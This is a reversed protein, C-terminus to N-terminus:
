SGAAPGTPVWFRLKGDREGAPVGGNREIVVRSGVNGVDCTVLARDIGLARAVPLAAALMATAHGERRRSRRVDYGIHGGVERLWANLEHRVSMRGIYGKEDVWWLNTNLVWDEDVVTDREAVRAAVYEAFGEDSEWRGTWEDLDRGLGSGDGTRGEAAFEAMAALFSDKLSVDPVVFRAM